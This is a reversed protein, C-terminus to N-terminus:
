VTCSHADLLQRQSCVAQEGALGEIVYFLLRFDEVVVHVENDSTLSGASQCLLSSVVMTIGVCIGIIVYKYCALLPRFYQGVSQILREAQCHRILCNDPM